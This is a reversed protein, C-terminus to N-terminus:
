GGPRVPFGLDESGLYTLRGGPEVLQRLVIPALYLAETIAGISDAHHVPMVHEDAARKIRLMCSWKPGMQLPLSIAVRIPVPASAGPALYELERVVEVVELVDDDAFMRLDPTIRGGGEARVRYEIVEPLMNLAHTLALMPETDYSMASGSQAFGEITATCQYGLTPHPEPLGVSARILRPETAGPPWWQVERTIM